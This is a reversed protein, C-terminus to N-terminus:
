KTTARHEKRAQKRRQVSATRSEPRHSHQTFSLQESSEQSLYRALHSVSPYQFMEVLPFNRQFIKQLKNHVQILLLSHGGLDFFNDHIGVDKVLLVEQWTNAITHEVETQPPQYVVELEPRIQNPVPLVKRNVKGNPTLPLKDLVVFATPIMYNPLKSELFVRLETITLTQETHLVAYAVLRQSSASDERVDVVTERVAPHQSILAEIEGLEIRFGRVKVQHDIRGIYEIEGNPLYRALDGTKYLRSASKNNFPNPIFKEATLEPRNLYGRALGDGGIHLEGPVGVPVLQAHQDLIYFQTNAIPHSIPAVTSDTKVLCAASWITTETPGYMNWVSDHRNLLENALHKPLAEGGCLIKLQHNGAWGAALLLQWTAPTAQMVTANSHTLKASLQTGDSAVERSTVVLCAGVIIPLFLELAAIDFSYTTVALLTDLETLGPTQRMAHLFNNLAGHPIQVGKPKGTSGSTYIVYALNNATVQTVANEKSHQAISLWDTDICVVKAKHQPIAEMLQAQTLLVQVQANELIFALREQPYTPDLPVYAGGAKLIGLLGIVMDLSREVCIGVLVEPEVGLKRLYHALQNARANLERYTLQEDEFVVATADPTCEVQAEFLQHICQQSYNIQTNNWEVLLTQQEPETLLPLESLRQEPNAIIGELLTQFHKVMRNITTADFLDTSYEVLGKIGRNTEQLNFRLEFKATGNDLVLPTVTLDLLELPEVQASQLDFKVQFLPVMQSLNREPNLVDVLKDFSLDQHDYAGLTVERVRSLLSRFTPNGSLNTRLVLTNILFGILGETEVRNRNAIDTGVVIDNQYTYKYLLVNFAALLLTFLTVREKASLAKLADSLGKSLEFSQKAGQYTAVAPRPRDTPLELVPLNALQQKWYAMQASLVTGQLYEQQWIAWDAYQIPLEPLPSPQKRSFAEYLAKMERVFVGLSWRDSVIHHMTLLLVYETQELQLLTIRLLPKTLDFPQQAETIALRQVEQEKNPAEKLDVIPLTIPQASAIAQIPQGESNTIFTTRLSEHRRVIETFVKALLAVNLQGELRLASFVNYASNDPNLQQFFWLRQQAFSLPLENQEKRKSIESTKLPTLSRQKLRKEFLMRQEPSLAALQQSFDSM